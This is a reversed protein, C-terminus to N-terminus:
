SEVMLMPPTVMLVPVSNIWVTHPFSRMHYSKLVACPDGLKGKVDPHKFPQEVSFYVSATLTCIECKFIKNSSNCGEAFAHSEYKFQRNKHCKHPHKKSTADTDLAEALEKASIVAM